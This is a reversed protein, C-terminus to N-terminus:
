HDGRRRRDHRDHERDRHDRHDRRDQHDRHDRRDRRQRDDRHDDLKVGAAANDTGIIIQFGRAGAQDTKKGYKQGLTIKGPNGPAFQKTVTRRARVPCARMQEANAHHNANQALAAGAVAAAAALAAARGCKNLNKLLM